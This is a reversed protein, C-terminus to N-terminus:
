LGRLFKTPARRREMEQMEIKAVEGDQVKRVIERKIGELMQLAIVVRQAQEKNDPNCGKAQDVLYADMAEFAEKFHRNDLLQQAEAGIISRQEPTFMQRIRDIM